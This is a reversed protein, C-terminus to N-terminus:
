PEPRRLRHGRPRWRAHRQAITGHPVVRTEFTYDWGLQDAAVALTITKLTSAPTLLRHANEAVLTDRGVLSRVEIGWTGAAVPPEALLAAVRQRLASLRADPADASSPPSPLAPAPTGRCALLLTLSLVAVTLRGRMKRVRRYGEAGRGAQDPRDERRGSRGPALRLADAGSRALLVRDEKKGEDFKVVITAAPADLGTKAKSDVFSIARIDALSAVFTQFKEKDPEAPTPSVRKWTDQANEGTGKVKDFATTKGDRTIEIRTATFARMDFLEKRRFDDATKTFDDATTKDITYVDPRSLDKVYVTMDDAAGGIALSARASGM